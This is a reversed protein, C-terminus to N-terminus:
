LSMRALGLLSVVNQTASKSSKLNYNGSGFEFGGGWQFGDKPREDIYGHFTILWSESSKIAYRTGGVGFQGSEQITYRLETFWDLPMGLFAPKAAGGTGLVLNLMTKDYGGSTEGGISLAAMHAELGGYLRDAGSFVKTKMSYLGAGRLGYGFFSGKSTQGYGLDIGYALIVSESLPNRITVGASNVLWLPLATAATSSGGITWSRLGAYTELDSGKPAIVELISGQSQTEDDAPTEETPEEAVSTEEPAPEPAETAAPKKVPDPKTPAPKAAIVAKGEPTMSPAIANESNTQASVFTESGDPRAFRSRGSIAEVRIGQGVSISNEHTLSTIRGISSKAKSEVIKIKGARSTNFTLWSGNAPHLTQIKVGIVDFEEGVKISQDSGGSVTVFEGNVSTVHADVPLRNIMRHLLDALRSVIQEHSSELLWSRSVVESEQLWTEFDPSLIRTTMVVMDSRSSLSLNAFAQLEYDAQLEKRGAPSSWMSAVLDDNLVSFRKSARVADSFDKSMTRQVLELDSWSDNKEWQAPIVGLYHIIPFADKGSGPAANAAVTLGLAFVALFCSIKFCVDFKRLTM